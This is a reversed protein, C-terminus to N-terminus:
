QIIEGGNAAIMCAVVIAVAWLGDLRDLIGGHGPILAGSDKVGCQRKIWSELFDGSQAVVALIMGLIAGYFWNILQMTEALFPVSIAGVLSAALMGGALGSWTKSPSVAPLIKPGGIIRGAAYAAIDTAWTISIIFILVSLGKPSERLYLLAFAFIMAYVLGCINWRKKKSSSWEDAKNAVMGQWEQLILLAAAAILCQYLVAGQVVIALVAPALLLASITRRLLEGSLHQKIKQHWAM